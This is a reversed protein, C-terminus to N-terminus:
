GLLANAAASVLFSLFMLGFSHKVGAKISGESLKGIVFGTFFGQVLILYLFANSIQSQNIPETATASFKPGAFDSISEVGSIGSVIPLIQFQM